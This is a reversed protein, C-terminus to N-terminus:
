HHQITMTLDSDTCVPPQIPLNWKLEAKHPGPALRPTVSTLTGPRTSADSSSRINFNNSVQLDDILLRMQAFSGAGITFNGAFSVLAPQSATGGVMFTKVM